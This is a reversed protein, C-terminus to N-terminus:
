SVGGGGAGKARDRLRDLAADLDRGDTDIADFDKRLADAAEQQEAAAEARGQQRGAETQRGSILDILAALIRAWWPESGSM